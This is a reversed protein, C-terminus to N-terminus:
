MYMHRISEPLERQPEKNDEAFKKLAPEIDALTVTLTKNEQDERLLEAAKKYFPRLASNLISNLSRVGLDIEISIAALSRLASEEIALDIDYFQKFEKKAQDLPSSEKSIVRLMTDITHGCFPIISHFRAVFEPEFGYSIIDKHTRATTGREGKTDHRGKIGSFAGTGIFWWNVPTFTRDELSIAHGDLPVLLVHQISRGFNKLDEETTIGLKDVEDIAVIASSPNQNAKCFTAVAESFNHGKFGEDTLSRANLYMVPAKLFEGLRKITESKGCGTPGTLICHSPRSAPPKSKDVLLKNCLFRHALFSLSQLADDQGAIFRSLYTFLEDASPALKGVVTDGHPPDLLEVTLSAPAAALSPDHSPPAQRHHKEAPLSLIDLSPLALTPTTPAATYSSSFPLVLTPPYTRGSASEILASVARDALMYRRLDLHSGILQRRILTFAPTNSGPFSAKYELIAKKWPDLTRDVLDIARLKNMLIDFPHEPISASGSDSQPSAPNGFSSPTLLEDEPLPPNGSESAAILQSLIFFANSFVIKFYPISM